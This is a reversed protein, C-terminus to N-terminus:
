AMAAVAEPHEIALIAACIDEMPRPRSYFYGQAEDCGEGLLMDRHAATEVGEAVVPIHLGKALAVVARTV